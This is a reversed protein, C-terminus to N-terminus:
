KSAEQQEAQAAHYRRIALDLFQAETDIGIFHRGHRTAAIGTTGSGVFPDVILDGPDSSALIIRELLALPKQTPHNKGSQKEAGTPSTFRWVSKMQRDGNQSRMLQYHFKHKSKPDRAAWLITETSHTFYRCSLNPPPNPKEWTIENLLKFGIEQMAFGVSFIVHRTGSVWIAGNAKLTSHCVQLWARNFEHMAAVSELRDWGGKNVSVMKGSHCTVGGNSLFYPPDAFILDVAAEAGSPITAAADAARRRSLSHFRAFRFHFIAGVTSGDTGNGGARQHDEGEGGIRRHLRYGQRDVAAVALDGGKV